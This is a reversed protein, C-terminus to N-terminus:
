FLLMGGGVWRCEHFYVQYCKHYVAHRNDEDWRDPGPTLRHSRTQSSIGFTWIVCTLDPRCVRLHWTSTMLTKDRLCKAGDCVKQQKAVASKLCHSFSHPLSGAFRRLFSIKCRLLNMGFCQATRGSPFSELSWWHGSLSVFLPM